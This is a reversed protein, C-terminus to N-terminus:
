VGLHLARIIPLQHSLTMSLCSARQDLDVRGKPRVPYIKRLALILMRCNLGYHHRSRDELAETPCSRSGPLM